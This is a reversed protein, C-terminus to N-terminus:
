GIYAEGFIDAKFRSLNFGTATYEYEGADNLKIKFDDNITDEHSEIMKIARYLIGNIALNRQHNTEYSANDEFTVVYSLENYALLKGNSDYILGRTSPLEKTKEISLAFNNLYDEGKIIQLTFLRRVLVLCLVIFVVLLMGMRVSSAGSSLKKFKKFM